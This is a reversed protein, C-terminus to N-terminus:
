IPNRSFSFSFFTPRAKQICIMYMWHWRGDKFFPLHCQIRNKKVNRLFIPSSCLCPVLFTASYVSSFQLCQCLWVSLSRVTSSISSFSQPPYAECYNRSVNDFTTDQSIACLRRASFRILSSFFFYGYACFLFCIPPNITYAFVFFCM